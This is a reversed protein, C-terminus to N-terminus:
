FSVQTNMQLVNVKHTLQYQFFSIIIHYIDM